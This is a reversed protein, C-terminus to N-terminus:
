LVEPCVRGAHRLMRQGYYALKERDDTRTIIWGASAMTRLLTFVPTDEQLRTTAGYGDILAASLDPLM